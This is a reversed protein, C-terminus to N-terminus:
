FPMTPLEVGPALALGLGISGGLLGIITAAAGGYPKGLLMNAVSGPYQAVSQGLNIGQAIDGPTAASAVGAGSVAITVAAVPAAVYRMMKM